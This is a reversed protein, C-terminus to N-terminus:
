YCATSCSQKSFSAMMQEREHKRIRFPNWDYVDRVIQYFVLDLMEQNDLTENPYFLQFSIAQNAFEFREVMELLLTKNGREACPVVM